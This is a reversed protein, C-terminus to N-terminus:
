LRITCTVTREIKKTARSMAAAFLLRLTELEKAQFSTQLMLDVITKKNAVTDLRMHEAVWLDHGDSRPLFNVDPNQEHVDM